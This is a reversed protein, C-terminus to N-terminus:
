ASPTLIDRVIEELQRPNARLDVQVVMQDPTCRELIKREADFIDNDFWIFDSNWDLAETKLDIWATPQIRDIDEYYEPSLVKKMKTRAYSADAERCHTTLWFTDYPRLAILFEELGAAPKGYNETLDEHIMTGDIDLYMKTGRKLALGVAEKWYQTNTPAIHAGMKAIRQMLTNYFITAYSQGLLSRVAILIRTIRLHNHDSESLWRETHMFFATMRELARLMNAQAVPSAVIARKEEKSLIPSDWVSESMTELPFLWQIYTHDYELKADDFSLIDNLTRGQADTGVGHLFTVLPTM